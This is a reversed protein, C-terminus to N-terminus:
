DTYDAGVAGVFDLTCLFTISAQTQRKEHALLRDKLLTLLWFYNKCPM